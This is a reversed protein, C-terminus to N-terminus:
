TLTPKFISTTIFEERNCYYLDTCAALQIMIDVVTDNTKFNFAKSLIFHLNNPFNLSLRDLNFTLLYETKALNPIKLNTFHKDM